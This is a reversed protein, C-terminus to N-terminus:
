FDRFASPTPASVPRLDDFDNFGLRPLATTPPLPREASRAALDAM